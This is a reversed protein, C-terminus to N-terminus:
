MKSNVLLPTSDERVDFLAIWFCSDVLFNRHFSSSM